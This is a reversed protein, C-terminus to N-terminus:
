QVRGQRAARAYASLAPPVARRSALFADIIDAVREPYAWQWHGLGHLASEQCALHRLELAACMVELCADDIAREAPLDPRPRLLSIDWLMYCTENLAATPRGSSLHRLQLECRRAFLDTYLRSMSAICRIRPGLEGRGDVLPRLAESCSPDFLFWLGQAIQDTSYASSWFGAEEFLRTLRGVMMEPRALPVTVSSDRTWWGRDDVPHEFIEAVWKSFASDSRTASGSTSKPKSRRSM